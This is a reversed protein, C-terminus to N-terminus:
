DRRHRTRMKDRGAGLNTQPDFSQLRRFPRDVSACRGGAIRLHRSCIAQAARPHRTRINYLAGNLDLFPHEPRRETDLM